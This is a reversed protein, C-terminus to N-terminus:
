QPNVPLVFNESLIRRRAAFEQIFLVDEVILAACALLIPGSM